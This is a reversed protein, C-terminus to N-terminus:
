RGGFPPAAYEPSALEDVRRLPVKEGVRKSELHFQPNDLKYLLPNDFMRRVFAPAALVSFAGYILPVLYLAITPIQYNSDSFAVLSPNMSGLVECRTGTREEIKYEPVRILRSENSGTQMREYAIATVHGRETWTAESCSKQVISVGSLGQTMWGLFLASSVLQVTRRRSKSFWAGLFSICGIGGVVGILGFLTVLQPSISIGEFLQAPLQGWLMVFVSVVFGLVCLQLIPLMYWSVVDLTPDASRKNKERMM